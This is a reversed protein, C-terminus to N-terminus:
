CLLYFVIDVHFTFGFWINGKSAREYFQSFRSNAEDDRRGDTRMSCSAERQVTKKKYFKINSYKKFRQRSHELKM